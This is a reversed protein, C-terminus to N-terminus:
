CVDGCETCAGSFFRVLCAGLHHPRPLCRRGEMELAPRQLRPPPHPSPHGPPDGMLLVDHLRVAALKWVDIQRQGHARAHKLRAVFLYCAIQQGRVRAASVVLLLTHKHLAGAHAACVSMNTSCCLSAAAASRKTRMGTPAASEVVAGSPLGSVRTSAIARLLTVDSSAADCRWAAGRSHSM